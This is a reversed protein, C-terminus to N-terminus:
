EEFYKKLNQLANFHFVSIGQENDHKPTLRIDQGLYFLVIKKTNAKWEELSVKKKSILEYEKKLLKNNKLFTSYDKALEMLDAARLIKQEPTKPITEAETALICAEIGSIQLKSYSIKELEQKALYVSYKEKTAFGLKKNDEAYGADHFLASILVTEKDVSIGFEECRKILQKCYEFVQLAHDFNHYPLNSYHKKALTKLRILSNM